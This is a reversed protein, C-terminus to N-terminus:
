VDHVVDYRNTTQNHKHRTWGDTKQSDHHIRRIYVCIVRELKEDEEERRRSAKKRENSKANQRTRAEM